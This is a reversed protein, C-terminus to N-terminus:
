LAGKYKLSQMPRFEKPLTPLIFGEGAMWRGNFKHWFRIADFQYAFEYTIWGALEGQLKEGTADFPVKNFRCCAVIEDYNERVYCEELAVHYRHTDRWYRGVWRVRRAPFAPEAKLLEPLRAIAKAIRRAEDSTLHQHAFSWGKAHLDDRHYVFALALGNADRVIYGHENREVPWPPPFRRKQDRSEM